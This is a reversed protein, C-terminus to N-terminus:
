DIKDEFCDYACSENTPFNYKLCTGTFYGCDGREKNLPLYRRCNFCNKCQSDIVRDM